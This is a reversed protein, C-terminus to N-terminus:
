QSVLIKVHISGQVLFASKIPKIGIAVWELYMLTYMVLRKMHKLMSSLLLVALVIVEPRLFGYTINIGGPSALIVLM